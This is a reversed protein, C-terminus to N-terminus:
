KCFGNLIKPDLNVDRLFRETLYGDVDFPAFDEPLSRKPQYHEITKDPRGDPTHLFEETAKMLVSVTEMNIHKTVDPSMRSYNRKSLAPIQVNMENRCSKENEVGYQNLTREYIGSRAPVNRRGSYVLTSRPVSSSHGVKYM